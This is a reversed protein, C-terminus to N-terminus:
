SETNDICYTICDSFCREEPILAPVERNLM